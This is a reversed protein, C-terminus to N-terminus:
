CPKDSPPLGLQIHIAGDWTFSFPFPALRSSVPKEGKETEQGVPIYAFRRQSAQWRAKGVAPPELRLGFYSNRESTVKTLEQDCSRSFCIISHNLIVLPLIFTKTYKPHPSTSLAIRFTLSPKGNGFSPLLGKPSRWPCKLFPFYGM